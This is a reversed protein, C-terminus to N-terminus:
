ARKGNDPVNTTYVSRKKNKILYHRRFPYALTDLDFEKRYVVAPEIYDTIHEPM